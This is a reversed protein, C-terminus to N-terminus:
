FPKISWIISVPTIEQYTHLDAFIALQGCTLILTPLISTNMKLNHILDVANGLGGQTCNEKKCVRLCKGEM